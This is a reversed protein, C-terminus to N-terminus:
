RQTWISDFLRDTFSKILVDTSKCPFVTETKLEDFHTVFLLMLWIGGYGFAGNTQAGNHFHGCGVLTSVRKAHGADALPGSAMQGAWKTPLGNLVQAVVWCWVFVLQYRHLQFWVGRLGRLWPVGRLPDLESRQKSASQKSHSSIRSRNLGDM